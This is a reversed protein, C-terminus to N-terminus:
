VSSVSIGPNYVYMLWLKGSRLHKDAIAGFFESTILLYLGLKPSTKQDYVSTASTTLFTTQEEWPVPALKPCSFSITFKQAATLLM